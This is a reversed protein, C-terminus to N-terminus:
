CERGTLGDRQAIAHNQVFAIRSVRLDGLLEALVRGFRRLQAVARRIHRASIPARARLALVDRQCPLRMLVQGIAHKVRWEYERFVPNSEFSDNQRYGGSAATLACAGHKRLNPQSAPNKLRFASRPLCSPGEVFPIASGAAKVFWQVYM